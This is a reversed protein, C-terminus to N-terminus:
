QYEYNLATPPANELFTVLTVIKTTHPTKQKKKQTRLKKKKKKKIRSSSIKRGGKQAGREHDPQPPLCRHRRATRAASPSPSPALSASKVLPLFVRCAPFSLNLLATMQLIKRFNYNDGLPFDHWNPPPPACCIETGLAAPGPKLAHPPSSPPLCPPLPLPLSPTCKVPDPGLLIAAPVRRM